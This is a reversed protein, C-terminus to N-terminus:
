NKDITAGLVSARIFSLNQFRKLEEATGTVVAGNILIKGETQKTNEKIGKLAKTVVTKHNGEKILQELTNIFYQGDEESYQIQESSSDFGLAQEGHKTKLDDGNLEVEMQKMQSKTTTDVWLWNVNKQGLQRSLETLTMPKRFSLAVEILTNKDLDIATDLENPLYDYSLGPYYFDIKRENNFDNYRIYRQAEKNHSIVETMVSEKEISHVKGFLPIKEMKKDWLITREGITKYYKTEATVSFLDHNYSKSGFSINAGHIRNYLSNEGNEEIRKNLIYQSGNFLIVLLITTTLLAILIYKVTQKRKTKKIANKLSPSSIFDIQEEKKMEDKKSM